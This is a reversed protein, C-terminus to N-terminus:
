KPSAYLAGNASSESTTGRFERDKNTERYWSFREGDISIQLKFRFSLSFHFLITCKCAYQAKTMDIHEKETKTSLGKVGSNLSYMRWFKRFIFTYTLFHSNTNYDDRM